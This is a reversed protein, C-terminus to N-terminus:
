VQEFSADSQYLMKRFVYGVSPPAKGSIMLKYFEEFPKEELVVRISSKPTHIMGFKGRARIDM